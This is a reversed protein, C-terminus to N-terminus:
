LTRRENLGEPSRTSACSRNALAHLSAIRPTMRLTVDQLVASQRSTSTMEYDNSM